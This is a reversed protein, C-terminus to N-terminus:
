EGDKKYDYPGPMPRLKPLPASQVPLAQIAEWTTRMPEIDFLLWGRRDIQSPLREEQWSYAPAMWKPSADDLIGRGCYVIPRLHAKPACKGTVPHPMVTELLWPHEPLAQEAPQEAAESTAGEEEYACQARTCFRAGSSTAYFNYNGCVPCVERDSM